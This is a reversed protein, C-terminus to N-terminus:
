EIIEAEEENAAEALAKQAQGAFWSQFQGLLETRLEDLSDASSLKDLIYGQLNNQFALMIRMIMHMQNETIQQLEDRVDALREKNLGELKELQELAGLMNKVSDADAAETSEVRLTVLELLHELRMLHLELREEGSMRQRNSIFDRWEKLTEVPTLGYKAAITEITSGRILEPIIMRQVTTMGNETKSVMESAM